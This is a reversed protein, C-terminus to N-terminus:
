EKHYSEWPSNSSLHYTIFCDSNSLIIRFPGLHYCVFEYGVLEGKSILLWAKDKLDLDPRPFHQKTIWHQFNLKDNVKIKKIKDFDTLSINKELIQIVSVREQCLGQYNMKDVRLKFPGNLTRSSCFKKHIGGYIMFSNKLHIKNDFILNKITREKTIFPELNLLANLVYYQCDRNLHTLIMKRDFKKSNAIKVTKNRKFEEKKKKVRAM